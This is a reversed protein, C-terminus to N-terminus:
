LFVVNNKSAARIIDKTSKFKNEGQLFARDGAHVFAWRYLRVATRRKM